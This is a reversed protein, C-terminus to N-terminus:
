NLSHARECARIASVYDPHRYGISKLWDIERIAAVDDGLCSLAIARAAIIKPHMKRQRSNTSTLRVVTQFNERSKSVDGLQRLNEGYLILAEAYAATVNIDNKMNNHLEAIQNIIKTVESIDAQQNYLRSLGLKTVAELRKKRSRIGDSNLKNLVTLADTYYKESMKADGAAREMDGAIQYATALYYSWDDNSLDSNALEKQRKIIEAIAMRKELHMGLSLGLQADLQKIKILQHEWEKNEQNNSVIPGLIEIAASFEAAADDLRGLSEYTMGIWSRTDALDKNWEKKGLPSSTAQLKLALSQKLYFLANPADGARQSLTALNNYAYSEEMLWEPNNNDTRRLDVARQLYEAWHKQAGEFNKQEVQYYGLWYSTQAYEYQADISSHNKLGAGIEKAEKAISEARLFDSLSTRMQGRKMRVSGRIRLARSYNIKDQLSLYGNLKSEYSSIAQASIKDLLSLDGLHELNRAIEKLMLTNAEEAEIRRIEAENRARYAVSALTASALGFVALLAVSFKRLRRKHLDNRSSAIIISHMEPAMDGPMKAQVELSEGLPRGPNLLHDDQRGERIWREAAQQLRAKAQLLRRNEDIWETSRPWRRLLAEHVVGATPRGDKFDGVFLRAAIFADVLRRADVPLDDKYIRRSRVADSESQIVIIKSLIIDLSTQADSSLSAFVQEARHAIAGELGGIDNYTAFTLQRKEKGGEYLTDLTHQLLPLADPQSTAADRLVDDLRNRSNADTEFSLDAKWAPSRIIEAIEGERPAMVDVHGDGVKYEALAPLTEMLKLYFDGRVIMTVLVYQCACLAQLIRAFGSLATTDVDDTAVLAEAHDIILLFHSYPQEIPSHNQFRRFAEAVFREVNSPTEILLSKLQNTTQQPFILRDDTGLKWGALAEILPTLPDVAPAAALDCSAVSLARLGDFGDPKTLLPLAGARLLSTKGCGSAGVILVFRRQNEIQSRMARLLDATIRSRGCFVSAHKADFASLGVYPSGGMWPESPLRRYDEPLDVSTILRYGVKSITEIYRPARSDDRIRKRLHSVTKSVPSDGYISSGWVEVLLREISVVEGAHMALMVLVEMMRPELAIEEEGRLVRLRDPQVQLDGMRFRSRKALGDSRKSMVGVEDRGICQPRERSAFSVPSIGAIRRFAHGASAAAHDIRPARDQRSGHTAGRRSRAPREIVKHHALTRKARKKTARIAISTL